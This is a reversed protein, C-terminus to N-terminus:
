ASTGRSEVTARLRRRHLTHDSFIALLILAGVTAQQWLAPVGLVPLARSLTVLLIAGLAAGWITGSGGFIAVGGIVVAAVSQIEWGKGILSYATAYRAVYLAGALGALAGSLILAGVVRKQSSLGDLSAARPNSGVAYSERGAQTSGMYWSVAVVTVLAVVTLFPVGFFSQTGFQLFNKPLDAPFIRTEGAWMILLGQYAYLTGLTVVLAPLKAVGVLVANVLGLLAGVLVAVLFVLGVPFDPNDTMIRGVSYASFGLVAGVSLDINRTIVVVAQGAALLILITPSILLERVGDSSTVFGPRNLFVAFIVVAIAVGIISERSKAVGAVSQWFKQSLSKGTKM